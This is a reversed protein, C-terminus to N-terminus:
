CVDELEVVEGVDLGFDLAAVGDGALFSVTDAFGVGPLQFVEPEFPLVFRGLILTFEVPKQIWAPISDVLIPSRRPM